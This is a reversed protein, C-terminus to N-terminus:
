KQSLVHNFVTASCHLDALSINTTGWKFWHCYWLSVAHYRTTESNVHSSTKFKDLFSYEKLYKNCLKLFFCFCFISDAIWNNIKADVSRLVNWCFSECITDIPWFHLLFPGVMGIKLLTVARKLEYLSMNIHTEEWARM